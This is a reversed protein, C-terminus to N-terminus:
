TPQPPPEASFARAHWDGRRLALEYREGLYMSTELRMAARNPGPRTSWGCISSRSHRRRRTALWGPQTGRAQGRARCGRDRLRAREGEVLSEVTGDLRNNVGM